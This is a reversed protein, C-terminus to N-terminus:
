LATPDLLRIPSGAAGFNQSQPHRRYGSQDSPKKSRFTPEGWGSLVQRKTAQKGFVESGHAVCGALFYALWTKGTGSESALLNVSGEAILNPVLWDISAQKQWVSGLQELSTINRARPEPVTRPRKSRISDMVGTGIQRGVDEFWRKARNMKTKSREQRVWLFPVVIFPRPIGLAPTPHSRLLHSLNLSESYISIHIYLFVPCVM